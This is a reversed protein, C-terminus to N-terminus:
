APPARTAPPGTARLLVPREHRPADPVDVVSAVALPGGCAMAPTAPASAVALLCGDGHPLTATGDDVQHSTATPTAGSHYLVVDAVRTAPGLGLLAVALVSRLLRVFPDTM